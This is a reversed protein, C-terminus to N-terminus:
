GSKVANATDPGGNALQPLYSIEIEGYSLTFQETPINASSGTNQVSTVHIDSLKITLYDFSNEGNRRASFTATKLSKGSACYLFLLPSSKDLLHTFSIDKFSAKGSSGSSTAGFSFSEIRITGAHGVQTAEGPIGDIQLFMESFAPAALLASALLSLYFRAFTMGTILNSLRILAIRFYFM